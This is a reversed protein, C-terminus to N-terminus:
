KKEILQTPYINTIDFQQDCSIRIEDRSQMRILYRDNGYSIEYISASYEGNMKEQPSFKLSM